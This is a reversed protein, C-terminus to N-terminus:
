LFDYHLPSAKDVAIFITVVIIGGLHKKQLSPLHFWDFIEGGNNTVHRRTSQKVRGDPPWNFIM